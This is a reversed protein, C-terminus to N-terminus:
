GLKGQMSADESHCGQSTDAGQAMATSRDVTEHWRRLKCVTGLSSVWLMVFNKIINIVILKLPKSESHRRIALTNKCPSVEEGKTCLHFM